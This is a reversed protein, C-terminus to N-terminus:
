RAAAAPARPGPSLPAAGKERHFRNALYSEATVLGLIVAMLWPFLERGVRSTRQVRKLSTPSDALAYGDKEGFLKGLDEEALLAFASEGPPANLSFGM